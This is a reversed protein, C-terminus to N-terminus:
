FMRQHIDNVLFDKTAALVVFQRVFYLCLLILLHTRWVQPPPQGGPFFAPNVHAAPQSTPPMGQQMAQQQPMM